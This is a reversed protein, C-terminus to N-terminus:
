FLKITCDNFWRITRFNGGAPLKSWTTEDCWPAGHGGKPFAHCMCKLRYETSRYRIGTWHKGIVYYMRPMAWTIKGLVIYFYLLPKRISKCVAPPWSWTKPHSEEAHGASFAKCHGYGYMPLLIVCIFVVKQIKSFQIMFEFPPTYTCPKESRCWCLFHFFGSLDSFANVTDQPLFRPFLVRCGGSVAM